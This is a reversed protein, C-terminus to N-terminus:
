RRPEPPRKLAGQLAAVAVYGLIRKGARYSGLVTGSIKSQGAQRVRYNVPVEAVALGRQAAKVQMEITWGFDRDQMELRALAERRVLRFPGLDSYRIGFFLRVLHCTLSNGFRQVPTLSGPEANGLVRSGIVMDASQGDLARLLSPLERPDDSGDGDLFGYIDPNDAGAIGALCASGYGRREEFVVTAGSARAVEATHDTSGNDVVIIQDVLTRDIDALVSGLAEEENYAPIIVAIRKGEYM